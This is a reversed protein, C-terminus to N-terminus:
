DQCYSFYFSRALIRWFTQQNMAWSRLVQATHHHKPSVLTFITQQHLCTSHLSRQCFNSSNYRMLRFTSITSLFMHSLKCHMFVVGCCSFHFTSYPALCSVPFSSQRQEMKSQSLSKKSRYRQQTQTIQRRHQYTQCWYFAMQYQTEIQLKVPLNLAETM